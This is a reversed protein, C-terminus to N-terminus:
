NEQQSTSNNVPQNYLKSSLKIAQQSDPHNVQQNQSHSGAKYTPYQVSQKSVPPIKRQNTTHNAPLKIPQINCLSTTQRILKNTTHNALQSTSLNVPGIIMHSASQSVSQSAAQLVSPKIKYSKDPRSAKLRALHTATHHFSKKCTQTM